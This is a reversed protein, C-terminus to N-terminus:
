NMHRLECDVYIAELILDFLKFNDPQMNYFDVWSKPKNPREVKNIEVEIEKLISLQRMIVEEQPSSSIKAKRSM